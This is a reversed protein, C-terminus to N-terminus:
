NLWSQPRGADQAKGEKEKPTYTVIVDVRKVLGAVVEVPAQADAGM